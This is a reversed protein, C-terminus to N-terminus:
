CAARLWKEAVGRLDAESMAVEAGFCAQQVRQLDHQLEQQEPVESVVVSYTQPREVPKPPPVFPISKIPSPIDDAKATTAPPAQIHGQSPSFPPEHACGGAAFLVALTLSLGLQPKRM